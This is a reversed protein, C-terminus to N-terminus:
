VVSPLVDLLWDEGLLHELRTDPLCMVVGMIIESGSLM